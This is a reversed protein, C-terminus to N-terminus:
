KRNQELWEQFLQNITIIGELKGSESVVPVAYVNHEIILKILDDISDSEKCTLVHKIILDSAQESTLLTFLKKVMSGASVHHSFIANFLQKRHILGLLNKDDDVVCLFHLDPNKLVLEVMEQMLMDKSVTIPPRYPYLEKVTSKM